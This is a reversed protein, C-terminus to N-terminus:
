QRFGEKTSNTSFIRIRRSVARDGIQLVYPPMGMGGFGDRDHGADRGYPPMGMGGSGDRDHGADRGYPPM